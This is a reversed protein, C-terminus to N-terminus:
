AWRTSISAAARSPRATPITSSTARRTTARTPRTSPRGGRRDDPRVSGRERRAPPLRGRPGPPRVPHGRRWRIAGGPQPREDPGDRRVGRDPRDPRHPLREADPLLGHRGLEGRRLRAGRLRPVHRHHRLRERVGRLGRGRRERHRRAFSLTISGGDGLSVLSGDMAGLANTAAGYSALGLGPNAIDMPGRTLNAVGTAWGTFAVNATTVGHAAYPGALALAPALAVLLALRRM